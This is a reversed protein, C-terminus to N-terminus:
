IRLAANFGTLSESLKVKLTENLYDYTSQFIGALPKWTEIYGAARPDSIAPTTEATPGSTLFKLASSVVYEANIQNRLEVLL